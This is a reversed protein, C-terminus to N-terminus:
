SPNLSEYPWPKGDRHIYVSSRRSAILPAGSSSLHIRATKFGALKMPFTESNSACILENLWYRAKSLHLITRVPASIVKRRSSFTSISSGDVFLSPSLSSSNRLRSNVFTDTAFSPSSLVTVSTSSCRILSISFHKNPLAYKATIKIAPLVSSPVNRPTAFLWGLDKLEAFADGLSPAPFTLCSWCQVR